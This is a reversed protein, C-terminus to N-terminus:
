RFFLLIPQHLKEDTFHRGARRGIQDADVLGRRGIEKVTQTLKNGPLQVFGRGQGALDLHIFAVEAALSLSLTAAAGGALNGYEADELAAALDVRLHDGVGAGLGQHRDYVAHDQGIADDVRIAPCAVVREIDRIEMVDPDIMRLAERVFFVVDIADLVKPVLGLAMHPFEVAHRFM